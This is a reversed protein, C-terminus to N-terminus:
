GVDGYRSDILDHHQPNERMILSEWESRVRKLQRADHYAAKRNDHAHLLLVRLHTLATYRRMSELDSVISLQLHRTQANETIVVWHPRKKGSSSFTQKHAKRLEEEPSFRLEQRDEGWSEFIRDNCNLGGKFRYHYEVLTFAIIGVCLAFPILISPWVTAIIFLLFTAAWLYTYLHFPYPSNFNFTLRSSTLSNRETEFIRYPTVVMNQLMFFFTVVYLLLTVAAAVWPSVIGTTALLPLLTAIGWVACAKWRRYRMVINTHQLISPPTMANFKHFCLSRHILYAPTINATLLCLHSATMLWPYAVSLYTVATLIFFVSSLAYRSEVAPYYFPYPTNLYDHDPRMWRPLGQSNYIDFSYPYTVRGAVLFFLALVFLVYQHASLHLFMDLISNGTQM